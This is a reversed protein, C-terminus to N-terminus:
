LADEASQVDAELPGADSADDASRSEHYDQETNVAWINDKDTRGCRINDVATMATLMSHDQNNYRHMGNRGVPVPERSGTSGSASSESIPRLHRLLRSLDEADRLVTAIWCTPVTSSGSTSRARGQRARSRMPTPCRGCSTARRQLLIRARAVGHEPRGGHVPELQQLDAPPRSQM